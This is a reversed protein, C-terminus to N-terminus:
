QNELPKEADRAAEIKLDELDRQRSEKEMQKSKERMSKFPEPIGFAAPKFAVNIKVTNPKLKDRRMSMSRRVQWNNPESALFDVLLIAAEKMSRASKYEEVTPTPSSWSRCEYPTVTVGEESNILSPDPLIELLKWKAQGLAFAIQHAARSAEVDPIYRIIAEVGSIRELPALNSKEGLQITVTRPALSKEIELRKNREDELSQQAQINGKELELNKAEQSSTKAQLESITKAQQKNTESQRDNVLKGTFLALGGLAVVGIQAWLYLTDLTM